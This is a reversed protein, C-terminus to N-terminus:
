EKGLSIVFLSAEKLSFLFAELHFKKLKKYAEYTINRYGIKFYVERFLVNGEKAEGGCLAKDGHGAPQGTVRAWWACSQSRDRVAKHPEMQPLRALRGPAGSAQAM